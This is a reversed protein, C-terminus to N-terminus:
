QRARFSVDPWLVVLACVIASGFVWVMAADNAPILISGGPSKQALLFVAGMVGITGATAPWRSDHSLRLGLVYVGVILVGAAALWPFWEQHVVTVITAMVAGGLLAGLASGWVKPM